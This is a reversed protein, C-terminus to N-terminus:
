KNRLTLIYYYILNRELIIRQLNLLWSLLLLEELIQTVIQVRKRFVKTFVFDQWLQEGGKLKAICTGYDECGEELYIGIEGPLKGVSKFRLRYMNVYRLDNEIYFM